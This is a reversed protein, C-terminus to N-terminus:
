ACAEAVTVTEVTGPALRSVIRQDGYSREARRMIDTVRLPADMMTCAITGAAYRARLTEFDTTRTM